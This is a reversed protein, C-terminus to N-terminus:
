LRSRSLRKTSACKRVNVGSASGSSSIRSSIEPLAGAHDALSAGVVGPEMDGYLGPEDVVQRKGGSRQVGGTARGREGVAADAGDIGGRRQRQRLHVGHEGRLIDEPLVLDPDGHVIFRQHCGRLEAIRSLGQRQHDGIVRLLCPGADRCEAELEVRQRCLEVRQCGLGLTCEELRGLGKCAAIRVASPRIAGQDDFAPGDHATLLLEIQLRLGRQRDGFVVASDQDVAGRLARACGLCRDRTHQPKCHMQHFDIHAPEAAAKAALFTLRRAEGRQGRQRGIPQPTRDLKHQPAVLVHRHGALTMRIDGVVAETEVSLAADVGIHDIEMLVGAGIRVEGPRDQGAGEEM